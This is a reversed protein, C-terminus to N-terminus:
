RKSSYLVTPTPSQTWTHHRRLSRDVQIEGCVVMVALILLVEACVTAITSAGCSDASVASTATKGFQIMEVAVPAAAPVVFVAVQDFFPGDREKQQRSTRIESTIESTMRFLQEETAM